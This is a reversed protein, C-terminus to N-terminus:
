ADGVGRGIWRASAM